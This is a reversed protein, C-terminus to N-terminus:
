AARLAITIAAWSDTLATEPGTWVAPDFAGSSWAKQGVGWTVTYLDSIRNTSFDALDASTYNATIASPAAASCGFVVIMSGVTAPTIAPPNVATGNVGTATTAAVDMQTTQNVARYARVVIQGPNNSSGSGSVDVAADPTAGMVKYSVSLNADYTDNAFLEAVETYGATTVGIARDTNSAVMHGVVVVDGQVLGLTSIDVTVALGSPRATLIEGLYNVAPSSTTTFGDGSAVASLNPTTFADAHVYHLWYATGASLGAIAVTKLGASTVAQSLAAVAAAGTHDQGAIVQAATPSTSSTTAVVYLTGEGTDTTVTGTAATAGNPDDTPLTLVPPTTDDATAPVNFAFSQNQGVPAANGTSLAISASNPSYTAAELFTGDGWPAKARLTVYRTQGLTLTTLDVTASINFVETANGITLPSTAGWLMDVQTIAPTNAPPAPKTVRFSTPTLETLTPAAMNGPRQAVSLDLTVDIYLGSTTNTVRITPAQDMGAVTATGSLIGASSLTVGAPLAPSAPALAYTTAGYFHPGLDYSYAEGVVVKQYPPQTVLLPAIPGLRMRPRSLRLGLGIM